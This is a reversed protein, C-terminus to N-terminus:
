PNLEFDIGVTGFEDDRFPEGANTWRGIGYHATLTAHIFFMALEPNSEDDFFADTLPITNIVLGNDDEDTVVALKSDVTFWADLNNM